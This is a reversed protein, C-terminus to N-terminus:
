CSREIPVLISPDRFLFANYFGHDKNGLSYGTLFQNNQDFNHYMHTRNNLVNLAM